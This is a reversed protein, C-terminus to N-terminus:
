RSYSVKKAQEEKKTKREDIEDVLLSILPSTILTFLNGAVIYLGFASNYLLTFLAMIVPM